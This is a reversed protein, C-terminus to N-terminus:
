VVGDKTTYNVKRKAIWKENFNVLRAMALM